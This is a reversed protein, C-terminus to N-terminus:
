SIDFIQIVDDANVAFAFKLSPMTAGNIVGGQNGDGVIAYDGDSAVDGTAGGSASLLLQGNLMVQVKAPTHTASIEGLSTAPSNVVDTVEAGTGLRLLFNAARLTPIIGKIQVPETSAVSDALANFAGVVTTGANFMSKAIFTAYEGTAGLDWQDGTMEGIMHVDKFQLGPCATQNAALVLSKDPGAGVYFEADAGTGATGPVPKVWGWEENSQELLAMSGSAWFALGNKAVVAHQAGKANTNDDVKNALAGSLVVATGNTLTDINRELTLYSDKQVVLKSFKLTAPDETHLQINNSSSLKLRATSLLTTKGIVAADLTGTSQLRIAATDKDQQLLITNSKDAPNVFALAAPSLWQEQGTIKAIANAYLQLVSQLGSGVLTEGPLGNAITSIKQTLDGSVIDYTANTGLSATIQQLRLNTKSSM